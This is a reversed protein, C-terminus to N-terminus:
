FTRLFMKDHEEVCTTFGILEVYLSPSLLVGKMGEDSACSSKTILCLFIIIYPFVM